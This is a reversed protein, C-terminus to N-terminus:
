KFYFTKNKKSILTRIEDIAQQQFTFKLSRAKMDAISPPLVTCVIDTPPIGAIDPKDPWRYLLLNREQACKTMFKVQVDEDNAM